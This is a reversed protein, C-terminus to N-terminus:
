CKHLIDIVANMGEKFAQVYNETLLRETKIGGSNLEIYKKTVLGNVRSEVLHVIGEKCADFTQEYTPINGNADCPYGLSMLKDFVTEEKEM